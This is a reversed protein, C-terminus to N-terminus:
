TEKLWDITKPTPTFLTATKQTQGFSADTEAASLNETNKEYAGSMLRILPVLGADMIRCDVITYVTLFTSIMVLRILKLPM